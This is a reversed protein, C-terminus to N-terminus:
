NSNMLIPQPLRVQKALLFYRRHRPSRLACVCTSLLALSTARPNRVAPPLAPSSSLLAHSHHRAARARVRAARPLRAPPHPVRGPVHEGAPLRRGPELELVWQQEGVHLQRQQEASYDYAGLQQVISTTLSYISM